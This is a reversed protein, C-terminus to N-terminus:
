SRTPRRWTGATSTASTPTTSAPSPWIWIPPRSTGVRADAKRVTYGTKEPLLSISYRLTVLRGSKDPVEFALEVNEPFAKAKTINILGKNFGRLRRGFFKSAQGVLLADMDIVPGGGPGMCEIPVELLVRDTFVRALGKQSELDGSTRVAFNPEILALKKDFRKWYAYQDNVQIGAFLSGGAINYAIFLKQNAFGSPLEALVQGDKKRTYLTYLSKGDVTSIVKKYDKAVDEFKPFEPKDKKKAEDKAKDMKKALEAPVETQSPATATAVGLAVMVAIAAPVRTLRYEVMPMM